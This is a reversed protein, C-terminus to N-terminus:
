RFSFFGAEFKNRTDTTLVRLREDEVRLAESPHKTFIGPDFERLLRISQRGRSRSLAVYAAFPNVPFARTTGIDIIAYEITQGQSKHDTFAYAAVLAFQRRKIRANIIDGHSIKFSTESPFIPITGPALNPFPEFEYHFPKFLIMAPPYRLRITGQEDDERAPGLVERPDLVIDEIVGRSGNALDAETAMNITIMVQMGVALEVRHALKGTKDPKLKSIALKHRMNCNTDGVGRGGLSDEASVVYLYNGSNVCHRRLAEHNWAARVSNRPTVLVANCWPEKSFDPTDM